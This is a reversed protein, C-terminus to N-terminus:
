LRGEGLRDWTINREHGMICTVDPIETAYPLYAANRPGAFAKESLLEPWFELLWLREGGKEGVLIILKQYDRMLKPFERKQAPTFKITLWDGNIEGLKLEVWLLEKKDIM